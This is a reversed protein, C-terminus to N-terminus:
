LVELQYIQKWDRSIDSSRGVAREISSMISLIAINLNKIKSSKASFHEISALIM